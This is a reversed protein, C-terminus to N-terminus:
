RGRKGAPTFRAPKAPPAADALQVMAPDFWERTATAAAADTWSCLLLGNVSIREVTMDPGGSKLRVIDGEGFESM